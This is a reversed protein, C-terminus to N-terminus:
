YFLKATKGITQMTSPLKILFQVLERFKFIKSMDSNWEHFKSCAWFGNTKSVSSFLFNTFISEYFFKLENKPRNKINEVSLCYLTFEKINFEKAWDLIKQVKEAEYEHGKWPELMLRKAFRRNGDLIIALHKLEEM